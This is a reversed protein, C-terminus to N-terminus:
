PRCFSRRRLFAHHRASLLLPQAACAIRLRDPAQTASHLPNTRSNPSRVWGPPLFQTESPAHLRPTPRAPHPGLEGAPRHERLQERLERVDPDRPESHRDIVEGANKSASGVAAKMGAQRIEELLEKAGPLIDQQTVGQIFEAYYRNKREMMEQLVKEPYPRGRLLQMLSDRRALGRLHENDERTFSIGEEDALRKWARFHYEATDTLVGDLDFLIGRVQFSNM